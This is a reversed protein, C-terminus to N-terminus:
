NQACFFEWSSSSGRSKRSWYNILVCLYQHVRLMHFFLDDDSESHYELNCDFYEENITSKNMNDDDEYAIIEQKWRSREFWSHVKEKANHSKQGANVKEENGMWNNKSKKNYNM